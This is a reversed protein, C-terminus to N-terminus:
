SANSSLLQTVRDFVRLRIRRAYSLTWMLTIITLTGLLIPSVFLVTAASVTYILAIRLILEGLFVCGWVATILRNSFRVEPLQWSADFRVRKQPDTGAMFQRGFFFMMPRPLLLSLFCALGFAGSFLSERVLLLRASGGFLLAICDTAIGLLIVISVPDVQGRLTVDFISKGLPFTTAVVLASFESRSVYRKFLKYLLVPVIANLAM